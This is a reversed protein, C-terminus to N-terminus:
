ACFAPEAAEHNVRDVLWFEIHFTTGIGVRSEYFLEGSLQKALQKSIHLGLGSGQTSGQASNEVQEFRGFVKNEMGDPIGGGTDKISLRVRGNGVKLAGEVIGQENSFKIANSILNDVIQRIAFADGMVVASKEVKSTVLSVGREVAFMRNEEISEVLLDGLEVPTSDLSLAEIDIKQILLINDVLRSLRVGNRNAIELSSRIPGALEGLRGSLALALGGKLSTLPTRLEHSVVSIFEDKARGADDAKKLAEELQLTIAIRDTIDVFTVSWGLISGSPDLPNAIQRVRPEYVRAGITMNAIHESTNLGEISARMADLFRDTGYKRGARKAATNVLVIKRHRDILVVPESMTNFLISQGVSAMDMTKNTVLMWTFPFLALTFMFATPDLGFFTLGLGVYAANATLPTTTIIILMTLMPWATRRARRFARGLCYLTAFVFAYLTGIIAYFGPGHAYKIQREGLPIVSADTYVLNHWPNTAVFAFIALPVVILIIRAKRRWFTDDVYAFVFFCWAVPVMGNGLWALTAWQLQCAFTASSAEFGVMILTWIMALFTLAYYIKGQFSQFKMMWFLVIAAVASVGVVSWM